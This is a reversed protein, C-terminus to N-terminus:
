GPISSRPINSAQTDFVSVVALSAAFAAASPVGAADWFAFTVAKATGPVLPFGNDSFRGEYAVTLQVWAASAASAELVFGMCNAATDYVFASATIRPDPLSVNALSAPYIVSSTSTPSGDPLVVSLSFLTLGDERRQGQTMATLPAEWLVAASRALARFQTRNSYVPASGQTWGYTAISLSANTDVLLDSIRVAVTDPL